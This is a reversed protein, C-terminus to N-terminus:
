GTRRGSNPSRKLLPVADAPDFSPTRAAEEGGIAVGRRVPWATLLTDWLTLSTRGLAPSSRGANRDTARHVRRFISDALRAWGGYAVSSGCKALDVAVAERRGLRLIFGVRKRPGSPLDGIPVPEFSYIWGIDHAPQARPSDKVVPRSADDIQGRNVHGCWVPGSGFISWHPFHLARPTGPCMRLSLPGSNVAVATHSQSSYTPAFASKM